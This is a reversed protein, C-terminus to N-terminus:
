RETQNFTTFANEIEISVGMGKLRTRTMLCAMVM